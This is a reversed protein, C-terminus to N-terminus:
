LLAACQDASTDLLIHTAILAKRSRWRGRGGFAVLGGLVWYTVCILVFLRPDAAGVSPTPRTLMEIAYLAPPLLLRYISALGVIRWALDGPNGREQETSAAGEVPGTAAPAAAAPVTPILDVFPGAEEPEPATRM